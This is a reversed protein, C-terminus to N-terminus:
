KKMQEKHKKWDEENCWFWKEKLIWSEDLKPKAPIPVFTISYRKRRVPQSIETTPLNFSNICLITNKDIVKYWDERLHWGDLFSMAQYMSQVKITDGCIIYGGWYNGYFHKAGLTESNESLDNLFSTVDRIVWKKERNDYYNGQISYVYIGNDYFMFHHYTTDVHYISTDKLFGGVTPSRKILFM